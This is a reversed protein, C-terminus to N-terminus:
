EESRFSFKEKEISILLLLASSIILLSTYTYGKCLYSFIVHLPFIALITSSIFAVRLNYTKACFIYTIIITLLAIFSELIKGVALQEGTIRYLFGLIIGALSSDLSIKGTYAFQRANLLIVAGDTEILTTTLAYFIRVAGGLLLPFILPFYKNSKTLIM